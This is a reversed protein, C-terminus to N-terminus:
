HYGRAATRGQAGHGFRRGGCAIGLTTRTLLVRARVSATAMLHASREIRRIFRRCTYVSGSRDSGSVRLRGDVHANWGRARHCELEPNEAGGNCDRGRLARL